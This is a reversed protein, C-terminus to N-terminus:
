ATARKAGRAAKPRVVIARERARRTAAEIEEDSIEGHTAEYDRVFERMARLRAGHLVHRQLAENVWESISDAEGRAVALRAADLANEEVTASLRIRKM